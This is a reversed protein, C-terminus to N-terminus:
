LFCPSPALRARLWTPRCLIGPSRRSAPPGGPDQVPALALKMSVYCSLTVGAPRHAQPHRSLSAPPCVAAFTSHQARPQGGVSAQVRVGLWLHACM